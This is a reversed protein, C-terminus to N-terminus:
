LTCFYIHPSYILGAGQELCKVQISDRSSGELIPALIVRVKCIFFGAQVLQSGLNMAPSSAPIETWATTIM